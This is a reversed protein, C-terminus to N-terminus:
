GLADAQIDRASKGVRDNSREVARGESHTLLAPSNMIVVARCDIVLKM